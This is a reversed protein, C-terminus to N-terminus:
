RGTGGGERGEGVAEWAFLVVVMVEGGERRGKEGRVGRENDGGEVRGLRLFFAMVEAEGGEAGAGKEGEKCCLSDSLAHTSVTRASPRSPTSLAGSERALTVSRNGRFGTIPSLNEERCPCFPTIDINHGVSSIGKVSLPIDGSTIILGCAKGERITLPLQMSPPLPYLPPPPTIM